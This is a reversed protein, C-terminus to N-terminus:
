SMVLDTRVVRSRPKARTPRSLRQSMAPAMAREPPSDTAAAFANWPRVRPWLPLADLAAVTLWWELELPLPELL